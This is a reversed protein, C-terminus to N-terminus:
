LPQEGQLPEGPLRWETDGVYTVSIATENETDPKITVEDLLATDSLYEQYLEHNEANDISEKVVAESVDDWSTTINSEDIFQRPHIKIEGNNPVTDRGFERYEATINERPPPTIVLYAFRDNALPVEILHNMVAKMLDSVDITITELTDLMEADLKTFGKNNLELTEGESFVTANGYYPKKSEEWDQGEKTSPYLVRVQVISESDHSEFLDAITPEPLELTNSLMEPSYAVRSEETIIENEILSIVIEEVSQDEDLFTKVEDRTGLHDPNRVNAILWEVFESKEAIQYPYADDPDYGVPYVTRTVRDTSKRVLSLEPANVRLELVTGGSEAVAQPPSFPNIHEMDTLRTVHGDPHSQFHVSDRFARPNSASKEEGTAIDYMYGALSALQDDSLSDSM